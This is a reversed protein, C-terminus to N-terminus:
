VLRLDVVDLWVIQVSDVSVYRWRCMGSSMQSILLLISVERSTITGTLILGATGSRYARRREAYSLLQYTKYIEHWLKINTESIAM